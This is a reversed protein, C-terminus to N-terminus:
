SIGQNLFVLYILILILILCSDKPLFHAESSKTLFQNIRDTQLSVLPILKPIKKLWTVILRLVNYLFDNIADVQESTYSGGQLLFDVYIYLQGRLYQTTEFAGLGNM